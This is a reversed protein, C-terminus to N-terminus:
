FIFSNLCGKLKFGDVNIIPDGGNRTVDEFISERSTMEIFRILERIVHDNDGFGM